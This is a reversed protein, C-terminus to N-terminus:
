ILKGPNLIEKPDFQLKLKKMLKKTQPDINWVDIVSKLVSSAELIVLSGGLETIFNRLNNVIDTSDNSEKFSIIYIGNTIRSSCYIDIEFKKELTKIRHLIKAIDTILVGAKLVIRKSRILKWPFERINYWFSDELKKETISVAKINKSILKSINDAQDRVAKEVNEINISILYNENPLDIKCEPIIKNALSPNIIEFRSFVFNSKILLKVTNSISELEPIGLIITESAEPVPSVRFTTETLIGLTGISGVFLKPLDYGAVNKVVKSGGKIIKGDSRVAKIGILLERATGYRVRCPGSDNTSIIGGITAGKNVHPPDIPLFQEKTKLRNQLKKLSLGPETTVIMDDPQHNILKNLKLTSLAIDLRKPINGISKKTMSGFASVALSELNCLKIIESIETESSPTVVYKPTMGDVNCRNLDATNSIVNPKGVINELERDIQGM